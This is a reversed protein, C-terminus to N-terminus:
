DRRRHGSSDRSDDRNSRDYSFIESHFGGDSPRKQPKADNRAMLTRAVARGHESMGKMKEFLESRLHKDRHERQEQAHEFKRQARSYDQRNMTQEFRRMQVAGRIEVREFGQKEYNVASLGTADGPFRFSGDPARYVVVPDVSSEVSPPLHIQETEASGCDICPPVEPWMSLPRMVENVHGCIRCKQDILPM